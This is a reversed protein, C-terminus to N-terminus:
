PGLLRGLRSRLTNRAERLKPYRDRGADALAGRLLTARAYGLAPTTRGLM